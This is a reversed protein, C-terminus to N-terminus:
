CSCSSPTTAESKELDLGSALDNQVLSPTELIKQILEEFAQKVAIDTKASTEVFLCGNSRSFIQGEKKTVQRQEELDIKNGVVLKIADPVTSYQNVEKMWLNGLNTFSEKDCVDYVFIIGQAGRYYSSTLTRFREQGATDWITLKVKKGDVEMFKLKFDVGITSPMQEEFQDNSFRLLICSKGVGSDGVLLVKFLHDSSDITEDM